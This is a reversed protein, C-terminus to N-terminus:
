RGASFNVVNPSSPRYRRANTFEAFVDRAIQNPAQSSIVTIEVKHITVGGKGEVGKKRRDEELKKTKQAEVAMDFTNTIAGLQYKGVRFDGETSYHQVSRMDEARDLRWAEEDLTENIKAIKDFDGSRALTRMVAAFEQAADTAASFGVPVDQAANYSAESMTSIARGADLGKTTLDDVYKKAGESRGYPGGGSADVQDFRGRRAYWIEYATAAIAATAGLVITGITAAMGAGAALGTGLAYTELASTGTAAAVAGASAGVGAAGGAAGAAGGFLGAGKAASALTLMSGGISLAGSGVKAAIYLKLITELKGFSGDDRLFDKIEAGIAKVYPEADQWLRVIKDYARGGFDLLIPGYELFVAKGKDFATVLAHGVNDAYLKVTYQNKDFWENVDKLTATMRSFLPGTAAGIFSKANDIFASSQADFTAGFVKIAPEFKALSDQLIKVREQGSKDNFGQAHIGLRMGFVNHVGARGELLQALERGAQDLPVAMSKGAAMAQAAMREFTQVDLGSEFASGAASAVIGKLDAFEGPLDRADKRMQAMWGAAVQMGSEVSSTMGKANLIAALSVQTTELENNLKAAGYVAGGILATGAVKGITLLKGGISEVAGTFGDLLKGGVRSMESGLKNAQSGLTTLKTAPAGSVELAIDVVYRIGAM